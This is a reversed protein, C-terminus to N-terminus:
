RCLKPDKATMMLERHHRNLGLKGCTLLKAGEESVFTIVKRLRVLQM